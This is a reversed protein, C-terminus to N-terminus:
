KWEDYKKFYEQFTNILLNFNNRDATTIPKILSKVFSGGYIEMNGIMNIIRTRDKFDIKLKNEKEILPNQEESKELKEIKNEYEDLKDYLWKDIMQVACELNLISWNKKKKWDKFDRKWKKM